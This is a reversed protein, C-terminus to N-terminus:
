GSGSVGTLVLVEGPRVELDVSKLNHTRAGFLRTPLMLAANPFTRWIAISTLPCGPLSHLAFLVEPGRLQVLCYPTQLRNLAFRTLRGASRARGSPRARHEVGRLVE